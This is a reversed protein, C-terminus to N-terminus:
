EETVYLCLCSSHCCFSDPLLSSCALLALRPGYCPSTERPGSTVLILRGPEGRSGVMWGVETMVFKNRWGRAWRSQSCLVCLDLCYGKGRREKSWAEQEWGQVVKIMVSGKWSDYQVEAKILFTKELSWCKRAFKEKRKLSALLAKRKRILALQPLNQKRVTSKPWKVM